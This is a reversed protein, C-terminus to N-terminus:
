PLYRVIRPGLWNTIALPLHRWCAIAAAYKPNSPSLNPVPGADRMWYHWVLQCPEAGWQLKFRYTGGDRTSRGFDFRRAGGALAWEICRWYLLMNVSFRNHERLSSAWPVEVTERHHLVIAAAAPQSSREVVVVAHRKAERLVAQFFALPYVPTGLDRMNIAYVRYFDALLEAGGIRCSFGEKAPRRIQSRLKASFRALQSDSDDALELIMAVKDLRQPLGGSM